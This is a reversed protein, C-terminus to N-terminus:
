ICTVDFLLRKRLNVLWICTIQSSHIRIYRTPESLRIPRILGNSLNNRRTSIFTAMHRILIALWVPCFHISIPMCHNLVTFVMHSNCVTISILTLSLRSIYVITSFLAYLAQTRCITIIITSNQASHDLNKGTSKTLLTRLLNSLMSVFATSDSIRILNRIWEMRVFLTSEVANSM